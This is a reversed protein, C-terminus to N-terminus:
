LVIKDIGLNGREAQIAALLGYTADLLSRLAVVYADMADPDSPAADLQAAALAVAEAAVAQGARCLTLTDM